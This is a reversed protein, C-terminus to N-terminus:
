TASSRPQTGENLRQPKQVQIIVSMWGAGVGMAYLWADNCSGSYGTVVADRTRGGSVKGGKLGSSCRQKSHGFVVCVRSDRLNESFIVGVGGELTPMVSGNGRKVDEAM